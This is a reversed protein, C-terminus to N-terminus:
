QFSPKKNKKLFEGVLYISGCIVVQKINENIESLSEKLSNSIRINPYNAYIDPIQYRPNKETLKTFYIAERPNFLDFIEKFQSDNKMCMVYATPIDRNINRLLAEIGQLNHVCDILLKTEPPLLKFLSGSTISEMRGKHTTKALADEKFNINLYAAVATALGANYQQYDGTLSIKGMYPPAIILNSNKSKCVKQIIELARKDQNAPTFVPMGKRIIGCKEITIEEISNGLEYMHDLGINTIVSCMSPALNTPDLRGGLGCELLTYEASSKAFKQFACLTLIEFYNLKFRSLELINQQLDDNTIQQGNIVIRETENILHPSTFVNTKFGASRILSNLFAVTSGKGNTGAIHIVNSLNKHPSDLEELASIM